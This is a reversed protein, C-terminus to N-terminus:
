EIELLNNYRSFMGEDYGHHQPVGPIDEIYYWIDVIQKIVAIKGVLEKELWGRAGRVRYDGNYEFYKKNFIIKDGVKYKM